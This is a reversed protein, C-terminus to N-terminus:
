NWDLTTNMWSILKKEDERNAGVIKLGPNCFIPYIQIPDCYTNLEIEIWQGYQSGSSINEIELGKDFANKILMEQTEKESKSIPNGLNWIIQSIKM